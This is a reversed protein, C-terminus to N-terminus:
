MQSIYVGTNLWSQKQIIYEGTWMDEKESLCVHGAFEVYKPNM